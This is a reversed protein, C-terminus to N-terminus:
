APDADGRTLKVPGSIALLQKVANTVRPAADKNM